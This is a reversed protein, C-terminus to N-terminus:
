AAVALQELQIAETLMRHADAVYNFDEAGDLREYFAAQASPYLEFMRDVMSAVADFERDSLHADGTLEQLLPLASHPALALTLPTDADMAGYETALPFVTNEVAPALIRYAEAIHNFGMGGDDMLGYYAAREDPYCAMAAEALDLVADRTSEPLHEVTNISGLVNVAEPISLSLFELHAQTM